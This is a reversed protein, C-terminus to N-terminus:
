SGDLGEHEMYGQAAMDEAHATAARDLAAARALPLLGAEVRARDVLVAMQDQAQRPATTEAQAVPAGLVVAVLVGVGLWRGATWRDIVARLGVAEAASPM